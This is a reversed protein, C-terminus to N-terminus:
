RGPSTQQGMARLEVDREQSSTQGALQKNPFARAMLILYLFPSFVAAVILATGGSFPASGVVFAVALTLMDLLVLGQLWVLRQEAHFISPNLLLVIIAISWGFAMTNSVFFLTYRTPSKDALVPNGATHAQSGSDPSPKSDDQWFGGPPNLGATYTVSAALTALIMLWGRMEKIWVKQRLGEARREEEDKGVPVKVVPDSSALSTMYHRLLPDLMETAAAIQHHSMLPLASPPSSYYSSHPPPPPRTVSQGYQSLTVPLPASSM